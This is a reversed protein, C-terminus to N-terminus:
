ITPNSVRKTYTTKKHPELKKFGPEKKERESANRLLKNVSKHIKLITNTFVDDCRSVKIAPSPKDADDSLTVSKKHKPAQKMNIPGTINAETLISSRWARAEPSSISTFLVPSVKGLSCLHCFQIIHLCSELYKHVLPHEYPFTDNYKKSTDKTSEQDILDSCPNTSTDNINGLEAEVDIRFLTGYFVIATQDPETSPLELFSKTLLTPIPVINKYHFNTKPNRLKKFDDIDDCGLKFEHLSHSTGKNKKISKHVLEVPNANLETDIFAIMTKNSNKWSGEIVTPQHFLQLKTESLDLAIFCIDPNKSIEKFNKLFTPDISEHIQYINNDLYDFQNSQLLFEKWNPPKKNTM